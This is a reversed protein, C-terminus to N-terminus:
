HILSSNKECSGDSCSFGSSIAPHDFLPKASINSISSDSKADFRCSVWLSLDDNAFSTLSEKETLVGSSKLITREDQEAYRGENLKNKDIKKARDLVLVGYHPEGDFNNMSIKVTLQGVQVSQTKLMTAKAPGPNFEWVLTKSGDDDPKISSTVSCTVKGDRAFSTISGVVTLFVFFKKLM